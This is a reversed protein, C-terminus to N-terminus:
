SFSGNLNASRRTSKALHTKGRSKSRRLRGNVRLGNSPVFGNFRQKVTADNVGAKKFRGGFAEGRWKKPSLEVGGGAFNLGSYTYPSFNMSTIGIHTKVWKYSPHLATMNFPQTYSKGANSFSFTFPLSVGLVNVSINGTFVWSLPDRYQPQDDVFNGVMNYGMGGNVKVMDKKGIQDLDQSFVVSNFLLFFLLWVHTATLAPRMGRRFGGDILWFCSYFRGM